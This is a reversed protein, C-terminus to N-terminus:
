HLIKSRGSIQAVGGSCSQDVGVRKVVFGSMEGEKVVVIASVEYHRCNWDEENTVVRAVTCSLHCGCHHIKEDSEDNKEEESEAADSGEEDEAGASSGPLDLLEGVQWEM